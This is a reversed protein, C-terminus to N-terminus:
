ISDRYYDGEEYRALTGEKWERHRSLFRDRTDGNARSMPGFMALHRIIFIREDVCSKHNSDRKRRARKRAISAFARDM